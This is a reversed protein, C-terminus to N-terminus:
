RLHFDVGHRPIGSESGGETEEVAVTAGMLRQCLRARGASGGCEGIKKWPTPWRRPRRSRGTRKEARQPRETDGEARRGHGRSYKPNGGWDGGLLRCGGPEIGLAELEIRFLAAVAPPVIWHGGCNCMRISADCRLATSIGPVSDGGTCAKSEAMAIGYATLTRGKGASIRGREMGRDGGAARSGPKGMGARRRALRYPIGENRCCTSM